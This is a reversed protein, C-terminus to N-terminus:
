VCRIQKERAERCEEITGIARYQKIEKLAEVACTYHKVAREWEGATEPNTDETAYKLAAEARREMRELTANIIHEEM